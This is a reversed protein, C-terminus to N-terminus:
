FWLPIFFLIYLETKFIELNTLFEFWLSFRFQETQPLSHVPLTQETHLIIVRKVLSHDYNLYLMM